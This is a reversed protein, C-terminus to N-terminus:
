RVTIGETTIMIKGTKEVHIETGKFDVKIFEPSTKVPTTKPTPTPTVAEAKKRFNRSNRRNRKTTNMRISKEDLELLGAMRAHTRVRAIMNYNMQHKIALDIGREGKKTREVIDMYTDMPMNIKKSLKITEIKNTM